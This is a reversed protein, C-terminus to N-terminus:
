KEKWYTRTNLPAFGISYYFQQTSGVLAQTAGLEKCRRAAELVAAKALGMRRYAPDTAVPEVLCAKQQPDYWMGCHAAFDGNPAKVMVKLRLNVNPREFARRYEQEIEDNWKLPGDGDKEHNFGKWLAQAYRHLDYQEEMDTIAFGEPLAYELCAEQLDLAADSEKEETAVFNLQAMLRQFDRDADDVHVTFRGDKARLAEKAYAVMDARLSEYSPLTIIFTGGPSCDYTAAAVLREGEWWLGIKDLYSEDLYSHTIMWDWRGFHYGPSNAEALLQRLAYYDSSFRPESKYTSFKITQM